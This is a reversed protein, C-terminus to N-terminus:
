DGVRNATAKRQLLDVIRPHEAQLAALLYGSGREMGARHRRRLAADSHVENALAKADAAARAEAREEPTMAELDVKAAERAAATLAARDARATVQIQHEAKALDLTKRGGGTVPPSAGVATVYFTGDALRWYTATDTAEIIKM